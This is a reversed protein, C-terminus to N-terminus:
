YKFSVGTKFRTELKPCAVSGLCISNSQLEVGAYADAIIQTGNSTQLPILMGTGLEPSFLWEKATALGLQAGIDDEDFAGYVYNQPTGTVTVGPPLLPVISPATGTSPAGLSPLFALLPTQVGVRQEFHAPGTLSFGNNGANLNQFDFIAEVFWPFGSAPCAYGVLAGIDGGVVTTGAPAGSVQGAGGEANVGYFMGCKTTPYPQGLAALPNKTPMGAAHASLSIGSVAALIAYFITRRIGM